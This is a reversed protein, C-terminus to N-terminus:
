FYSDSKEGDDPIGMTRGLYSDVLPQSEVQLHTAMLYERDESTLRWGLAAINEDLQSPTKMGTIACTVLPNDLIWRLAVQVASKRYRNGIEKLRDVVQLNRTLNEPLFHFLRSRRDDQGFRTYLGYKGSLLGQALPGYALAGINLDWCSSLLKQEARRDLLNYPLQASAPAHVQRAELIQEPSFNSVGFYRIKGAEKCRVLTEITEAIETGPDPWHIQYLPICDLKMRRLSAELAKRVRAPSSDRFTEARGGNVCSKWNVGFKSAIVVRTRKDGLAQSLLEESCGLGYVDATDFFNVGEDVAKRVALMVAKQDVVGWDTGGLPECGFGLRSVQLDTNGLKAYEM